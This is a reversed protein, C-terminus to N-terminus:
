AKCIQTHIEKTKIRPQSNRFQNTLGARITIGLIHDFTGQIMGTGYNRGYQIKM